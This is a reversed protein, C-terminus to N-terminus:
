GLAKCFQKFREGVRIRALPCGERRAGPAIANVRIKKPAVEQALSKMM